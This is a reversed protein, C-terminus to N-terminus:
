KEDGAATNTFRRRARDDVAPGAEFFTKLLVREEGNGPDKTEFPAEKRGGGFLAV